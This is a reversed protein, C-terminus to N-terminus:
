DFHNLFNCFIAGLILKQLLMFHDAGGINLINAAKYVMCIISFLIMMHILWIEPEFCPEKGMNLVTKASFTIGGGHQAINELNQLMINSVSGIWVPESLKLTLFHFNLLAGGQYCWKQGRGILLQTILFSILTSIENKWWRTGLIQLAM